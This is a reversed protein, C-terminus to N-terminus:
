NATATRQKKKDNLYFDIIFLQGLSKRSDQKNV